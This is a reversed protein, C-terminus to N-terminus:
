ARQTEREPVACVGDECGEAPSAAGLLTLPAPHTEAWVQQLAGLLVEPSQAGSVGYKGGLVFFPVGTIGLAHAQAEDQRVAPGYQGQTLAARVEASDLGVEAALATLTDLDGVHRGETMYARLLREKMADQVGREAALHLLQHALFTNTLQTQEFHYTLGEGAATQTMADMMDQAQQASRGYKRALAGRMNQDNETPAQPDLEFSHWVVEVADQPAFAQLATEFRRKGIYCWPCAIDSWIDVRLKDPHAPSLSM